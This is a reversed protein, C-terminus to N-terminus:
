WRSPGISRTTTAPTDYHWVTLSHRHTRQRVSEADCRALFFASPRNGKTTVPATGSTADDGTASGVADVPVDGVRRTPAETPEFDTYTPPSWEGGVRLRGDPLPQLPRRREGLVVARRTAFWAHRRRYFTGDKRKRASSEEFGGCAVGEGLHSPWAFGLDEATVLTGSWESDEVRQGSGPDNRETKRAVSRNARRVLDAMTAVEPPTPRPRVPWFWVPCTLCKAPRDVSAARPYPLSGRM